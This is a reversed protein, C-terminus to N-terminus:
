GARRDDESCAGITSRALKADNLSGYPGDELWIDGIAVPSRSAIECEGTAGIASSGISGMPSVFRGIVSTIAGALM